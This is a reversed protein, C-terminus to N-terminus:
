QPTVCNSPESSLGTGIVSTASVTFVYTVGGGLGKVVIPSKYGSVSIHGPHTTVTYYTVPSSSTKPPDFSVTAMGKGATATVNRPPGPMLTSMPAGIGPAGGGGGGFGFAATAALLVVIVATAIARGIM